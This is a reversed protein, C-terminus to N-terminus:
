PTVDYPSRSRHSRHSSIPRIDAMYTGYTMYTRDSSFGLATAAPVPPRVIAPSSWGSAAPVEGAKGTRGAGVTARAECLGRRGACIFACGILDHDTHEPSPGRALDIRGPITRQGAEELGRYQNGHGARINAIERLIPGFFQEPEYTSPALGHIKILDLHSLCDIHGREMLAELQSRYGEYAREFGLSMCNAPKIPEM